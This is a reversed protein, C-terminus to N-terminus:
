EVERTTRCNQKFWGVIAVTDTTIKKAEAPDPAITEADPPDPDKPRPPTSPRGSPGEWTVTTMEQDVKRVAPPWREALRPDCWTDFQHPLAERDVAVVRPARVKEGRPTEAIEDALKLVEQRRLTDPLYGLREAIQADSLGFRRWSWVWFSWAERRDVQGDRRPWNLLAQRWYVYHFRDDWTDQDRWAQVFDDYFRDGPDLPRYGKLPSGTVLHLTGPTELGPIRGAATTATRNDSGMRTLPLVDRPDPM